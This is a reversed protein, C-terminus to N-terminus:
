LSFFLVTMYAAAVCCYMAGYWCLVPVVDEADDDAEDGYGVARHGHVFHYRM